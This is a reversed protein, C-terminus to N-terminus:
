CLVVTQKNDYRTSFWVLLVSHRYDWAGLGRGRRERRRRINLVSGLRQKDPLHLDLDLNISQFCNITIFHDTWRGQFSGDRPCPPTHTPASSPRSFSAPSTCTMFSTLLAKVAEEQMPIPGEPFLWEELARPSPM